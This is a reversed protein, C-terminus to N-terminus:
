FRFSVRLGAERTRNEPEFLETEEDLDFSDSQDVNWQRLFPGFSFHGLNVLASFEYGSGDNLDVTVDPFEPDVDSFKSESEGGTFFNYQGSVTISARDNVPFHAAIGAPIYSYSVNRDYGLFGDNTERGGSRDVLSRSGLGAFPALTVGNKLTFDRGVHFELYGVGQRVDNLETAGDDSQYDVSGVAASIRGRLFLDNSFKKTYAATVGFFRGDDRLGDGEFEERYGYDLVDAGVEFGTRTQAVAASAMMMTMMLAVITKM